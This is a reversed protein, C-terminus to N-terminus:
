MDITAQVTIRRKRSPDGHNGPPRPPDAIEAELDRVLVTMTRQRSTSASRGAALRNVYFLVLEHLAARLRQALGGILPLRLETLAM